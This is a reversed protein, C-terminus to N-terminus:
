SGEVRFPSFSSPVSHPPVLLNKKLPVLSLGRGLDISSELGLSQELLLLVEHASVIKILSPCHQEVLLWSLILQRWSYQGLTRM